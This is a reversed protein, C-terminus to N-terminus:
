EMMLPEVDMGLLLEDVLVQQEPDVQTKLARVFDMSSAPPNPYAHQQWLQRLAACIVQDGLQQRLVAFVLTARSYQEFGETADVLAQIKTTSRKLATNYRQREYDVLAQMSTAGYKQEILVLEVYKALSEVLFARDTLVGNGLDHGFWQHATEHVARRYRQDFGADDAPKARFGVRHNIMLVQPLAYGTPGINPMAIMTLHSGRYPAIHKTMWKLTDQMAQLNLDAADATDPPSFVSLLTSGQQRTIVHPAVSLWVPMNRIPGHTQYEAFTRGDQQWTKLLNGQALPTQDDSTSVVSRLRVWDYDAQTAQQQAFLVSPKALNLPSLGHEARLLEDRLQYHPQFGVTPLLGSGRLYSFSPKVLQHMVAPWLKPQVFTLNSWMTLQEGPKIAKSLSVITQNLKPDYQRTSDVSLSLQALGTAIDNGILLKDIAQASLNELTYTLAFKAQGIQPFIDVTSDIQSITPQAMNAWHAYNKEYEARWQERMDSNLLPREDIINNHLNFGVVVTLALLAISGLGLKRTKHIIFSTGRHSCKAALWLLCLCVLLWFSMFPWHVSLSQEYGWYADAAQLPSSAIKWLTHTLGLTGSLPTYKMLLIGICGAAALLPSRCLTHSAIFLAGLVMLSLGAISLQMVYQIPLINSNAVLEAALSALATLLMLLSLLVTLAVVHSFMLVGSRVPASAVLEAMHTQRNRWCLQWSWLLALLCGMLPLVDSSIRNLADLSTAQLVALPEAYNMASLVENFMLLGWGILILQNLRQQLLGSIALWSLQVLQKVASPHSTFASYSLDTTASLNDPLRLAISSKFPTSKLSAYFLGLALLCYGLRNLYFIWDGFLRLEPSQYFALLATIGFPDLWRLSEFLLPDVISSGALMPSGTMSALIIYALWLAGFFAYIVVASEFRQALYSALSALFACTPLALLAFNYFSLALLPWQFDFQLSLSFWMLMFGLLMLAASVFFLMLVRVALRKYRSQPTVLILEAMQYHQDRLLILPTLAAILLPLSMMLLTMHLAQLRKDALADIGGIGIAFVYAVLPLIICALWLLPQRILYRAENNLLM